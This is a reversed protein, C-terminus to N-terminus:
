VVDRTKEMEHVLQSYIIEGEKKRPKISQKSKKQELVSLIMKHSEREKRRKEKQERCFTDIRRTLDMSTLSEEDMSPIKSPLRVSGMNKMQRELYRARAEESSIPQVIDKETSIRTIPVHSAQTVPTSKAIPDPVNNIGPLTNEYAQIYENEMSTSQYQPIIMAKEPIVRFAMSFKGYM